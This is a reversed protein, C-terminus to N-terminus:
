ALVFCIFSSELPARTLPPSAMNCTAGGRVLAVCSPNPAPGARAALCLVRHCRRRWQGERSATHSVRALLLAYPPLPDGERLRRGLNSPLSAMRAACLAFFVFFVLWGVTERGIGVWIAISVLICLCKLGKSTSRSQKASDRRAHGAGEKGEAKERQRAQTSSGRASGDRRCCVGQTPLLGLAPSPQGITASGGERGGERRQVHLVAHMSCRYFTHLPLCPCARYALQVADPLVIAVQALM